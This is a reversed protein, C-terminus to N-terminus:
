WRRSSTRGKWFTRSGMHSNSRAQALLVSLGSPRGHEPLKASKSSKASIPTDPSPPTVHIDSATLEETTYVGSPRICFGRSLPVSPHRQIGFSLLSLLDSMFAPHAPCFPTEQNPPVFESLRMTSKRISDKTPHSHNSYSTGLNCHSSLYSSPVYSNAPFLRNYIADTYLRPFPLASPLSYFFTLFM